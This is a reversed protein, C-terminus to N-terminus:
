LDQEGSCRAHSWSARAAPYYCILQMTNTAALMLNQTRLWVRLAVQLAISRYFPARATLLVLNEHMNDEFHCLHMRIVAAGKRAKKSAPELTADPAARRM